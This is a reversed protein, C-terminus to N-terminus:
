FQGLLGNGEMIQAGAFIGLMQEEIVIIPQMLRRERMLKLRSGHHTTPLVNGDITRLRYADYSLKEHIYYPGEWKPMLKRSHSSDRRSDYSWVKDGIWFEPPKSIKKDHREKYQEQAKEVHKRVERIKEPLKETIEFIRKVLEEQEEAIPETPYPAIELDIPIIPDRGYVLFFPTHKTTAHVRTRYAFLATGVLNDWEMEQLDAYKALMRCLTQNFREVLGNTQPHYPSSLAHKVRFNQCLQNVVENCFERGQDSLIERPCGHRCLIEEYIFTAVEIASKTPIPRAEPWKTVYETAVVIFRNGKTTEPLPGVIDIGIRDFPQALKLPHLPTQSRGGGHQQCVRCTEVYNRIDNGMQPWYYRSEVRKLTGKFSFHGAMPDAHVNHLIREVEERRILRVPPDDKKRGRKYIKGDRVFLHKARAIMKRQDRSSLGEPFTQEMLYNYLETYTTPDM